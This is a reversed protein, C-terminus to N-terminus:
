EQMSLESEAKDIYTKFTEAYEEPALKPSMIKSPKMGAYQM